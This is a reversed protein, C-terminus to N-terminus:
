APAAGPRKESVSGTVGPRRVWSPLWEGPDEGRAEAACRLCLYVMDDTWEQLNGALERPQRALRWRYFDAFEEWAAAQEAPEWGRKCSEFWHLSPSIWGGPDVRLFLAIRPWRDALEQGVRM